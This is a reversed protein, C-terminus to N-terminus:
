KLPDKYHVTGYAANYVGHMQVTRVVTYAYGRHCIDPGVPIQVQLRWTVLKLRYSHAVPVPSRDNQFGCLM